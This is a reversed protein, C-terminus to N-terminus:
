SFINHREGGDVPLSHGLAPKLLLGTEELLAIEEENFSTIRQHLDNLALEVEILTADQACLETIISLAATENAPPSFLPASQADPAAAMALYKRRFAAASALHFHLISPGALFVSNERSAAELQWGHVGSPGRAAAVAVASKGNLYGNFYPRSGSQAIDMYQVLSSWGAPGLRAAALRPNVKFRPVGDGAPLLVEHNAYRIQRWGADTATSFHEVLTRGGRGARELNFLEDSDLHLLWDLPDGGLVDSQAAALASGANLTQRAPIAMSGHDGHALQALEGLHGADQETGWGDDMLSRGSWITLREPGYDAHLRAALASEAEEELRDFILVIHAMGLDFHHACWSELGKGAGYVTSMVGVRLEDNRQAHHTTITGSISEDDLNHFLVMDPPVPPDDIPLLVDTLSLKRQPYVFIPEEPADNCWGVLAWRAPGDSVPRVQHVITRADFLVISGGVAPIVQSPADGFKYPPRWLALEGGAPARERPNLYIVLSVARGNDRKGGPNDLHPAFGGSNAPYRALMMRAPPHIIQNPLVATLWTALEALTWQIFSALLPSTQLLDSERGHFYRVDDWRSPSPEGSVGVGARQLALTNSRYTEECAQYLHRVLPQNICGKPSLWRDSGTLVEKMEEAAPLELPVSEALKWQQWQNELPTREPLPQWWLSTDVLWAQAARLETMLDDLTQRLHVPTALPLIGSAAAKQAVALLQSPSVASSYGPGGKVLRWLLLRFLFDLETAEAFEAVSEVPKTGLALHEELRDLMSLGGPSRSSDAHPHVIM